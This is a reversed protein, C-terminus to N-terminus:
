KRFVSDNGEYSFWEFEAYNESSKNGSTAYMGIMTGVFGGAVETSLIRADGQYLKVWSNEEQACYFICKDGDVDIKLYVKDSSNELTHVYLSHLSKTGVDDYSSSFVVIADKDNRSTKGLLYFFRENQFAIIGAVETSDHASFDLLVSVSCKTHQQRRCIFASNESKNIMQPKLKLKLKGNNLTYFKEQPTRLFVWYDALKNEDFEDHLIFNGNKPFDGMDYSPLDPVQYSYRVEESGLDFVPWDNKWKVPAMFTERGTNFYNKQYPRCGLFVGWWEDSQTHVFDAHGTNTVPNQRLTDLHRQTLIPNGPYSIYPGTIKESRFVVESHDYSTGGEAAILYYYGNHKFIHPGEIWIPQETVETGKDVLLISKGKVRLQVPDFEFMWIARHGDYLPKKGPAEGNHVLYAKGDDDFFLSPDIGEVEPLWVPDSWSGGPDTSTVVFNGKGGVLTTVLYFTGKHYSIAPAFIGESVKQDVLNLQSPRDLVHGLQKWHVLDTSHFVPIGPYYAFSSNVMYYDDGARCISPDPYFGALVPNQYTNQTYTVPYVMCLFLATLIAKLLSKRM